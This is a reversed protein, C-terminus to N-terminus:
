DKIRYLLNYFDPDKTFCEMMEFIERESRKGPIGEVIREALITAPDNGVLLLRTAIRLAEHLDHTIFMSCFGQGKTQEIIIDQLNRRLGIDVASFPEDFFIIEPEVALARAVAARQRMGGSLAAPYKALDDMKLGVDSACQVVQDFVTKKSIKKNIGYAINEFTTKWPLLRPEQFVVAQRFFYRAIKGKQPQLLGAALQLITSKGTGSPGLIVVTEDENICFNINEIVRRGLYSFTINEMELKMEQCGM